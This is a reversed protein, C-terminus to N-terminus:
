IQKWSSKGEVSTTKRCCLLRATLNRGTGSTTWTRQADGPGSGHCQASFKRSRSPQHAQTHWPGWLAPCCCERPLMRWLHCICTKFSRKKLKKNQMLTYSILLRTITEPPCCLCEAMCPCIDMRGWVEKEDLSGCSMGCLERHQGAPRQQNEMNFM